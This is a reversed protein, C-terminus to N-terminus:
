STLKGLRSIKNNTFHCTVWNYWILASNFVYLQLRLHSSSVATPSNCIFITLPQDHCAPSKFEPTRWSRLIPQFSTVCCNPHFPVKSPTRDLRGSLAPSDALDSWITSPKDLKPFNWLQLNIKSHFSSSVCVSCCGLFLLTYVSCPEWDAEAWAPSGWLFPRLFLCEVPFTPKGKAHWLKVCQM